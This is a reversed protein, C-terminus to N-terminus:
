PRAIRCANSANLCSSDSLVLSVPRKAMAMSSISCICPSRLSLCTLISAKVKSSARSLIMASVASSSRAARSCAAAAALACAGAVLGAGRRGTRWASGDFRGRMSCRWSGSLVTHLQPWGRCRMLSSILSCDSQMGACNKTFRWMRPLYVQAQQWVRWASGMGACIISLPTGWDVSSVLNDALIKTAVDIILAHRSLGSVCELLLRHKFRKFAEELRWRLHYLEAFLHRPWAQTDLNTALVRIKGNPAVQRILRVTPAQDPCQWDQVEQASPAGLTVM